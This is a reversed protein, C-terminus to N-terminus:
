KTLIEKQNYQYYKNPVTELVKFTAKPFFNNVWIAVSKDGHPIASEFGSPGGTNYAHSHVMETITFDSHILKNVLFAAGTEHHEDHSTSIYNAGSGYKIQSWEVATNKAVFEFLKTGSTNDKTHYYDSKSEVAGEKVSGTGGNDAKNLVGKDVTISKDKDIKGDKDTAYLVDHDDNTKKELTINGKQHDVKYDDPSDGQPDNLLIPNNSMSTYPSVRENVKPDVSWWRGIEADQERFHTYYNNDSIRKERELGDFGRRDLV